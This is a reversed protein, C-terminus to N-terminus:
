HNTCSFYKYYFSFYNKPKPVYKIGHNRWHRCVQTVAPRMCSKSSRFFGEVRCCMWTKPGSFAVSFEWFIASRIIYVGAPPTYIVTWILQHVPGRSFYINHYVATHTLSKRFKRRGWYFIWVSAISRLVTYYICLENITISTASSQGILSRCSTMSHVSSRTSWDHSM